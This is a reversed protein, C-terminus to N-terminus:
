LASPPQGVFGLKLILHNRRYYDGMLGHDRHYQFYDSALREAEDQPVPHDFLFEYSTETEEDLYLNTEQKVLRM